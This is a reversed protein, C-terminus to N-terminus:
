DWETRPFEWAQWEEFSLNQIEEAQEETIETLEAWPKVMEWIREKNEEYFERAIRRLQTWTMNEEEEEDLDMEMMRHINSVIGDETLEGPHDALSLYSDGRSAVYFKQEM